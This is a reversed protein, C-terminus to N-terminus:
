PAGEAKALAARAAILAKRGAMRSEQTEFGNCLAEDIGKVAAYLDPAAVILALNAACAEPSPYNPNSNELVPTAISAIWPGCNKARVDHGYPNDRSEWPGPTFKTM